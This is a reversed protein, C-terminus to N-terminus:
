EMKWKVVPRHLFDRKHKLPAERATQKGQKSENRDLTSDNRWSSSEKPLIYRKKKKQVDLIHM